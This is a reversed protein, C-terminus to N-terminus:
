RGASRHAAIARANEAEVASRPIGVREALKMFRPDDRIGDFGPMLHFSAIATLRKEYAKELFAFADDRRGLQALEEAVEVEKNPQKKLQEILLRLFAERGSERLARRLDAVERPQVLGRDVENLSSEFDGTTLFTQAVCPVGGSPPNAKEAAHVFAVGEAYRREFFYRNCMANVSVLSLPDIEYGQEAEHRAEKTKGLTALNDAYWFYAASYSPNLEIAKRFDRDAADFDWLTRSETAAISAYARANRPDLELAKRASALVKASGEQPSLQGLGVMIGYTNALAAYADAYQPDLAIARKFDEVAEPLNDCQRANWIYIGRLYLEYAQASRTSSPVPVVARRPRLRATLDSLIRNQTIRLDGAPSEYQEGWLQAGDRVDILEVHVRQTAGAHSIDGVVMADIGLSRGATIADVHKGPLGFVSARAMVRLDSIKSLSDILTDALGDSVHSSAPDDNDFPMVAISRVLSVNSTSHKWVLVALSAVLLVVAVAAPLLIRRSVVKKAEAPAPEAPAHDIWSVPAIFRYGRRALTEVYRPQDAADDLAARLKRIATNLSHDFDVFEAPWLERQLEERTVVQAPREILYALLRLPQEQLKVLIGDRRLEASGLDLEFLGFRAIRKGSM